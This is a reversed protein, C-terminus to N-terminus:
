FMHNLLKKYVIIFKLHMENVFGIVSHKKFNKLCNEFRNKLKKNM